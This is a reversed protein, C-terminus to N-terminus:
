PPCGNLVMAHAYADEGAKQAAKQVEEHAQAQAQAQAWDPSPPPARVMGQDLPQPYCFSHLIAPLLYFAFSIAINYTRTLVYYHYYATSM